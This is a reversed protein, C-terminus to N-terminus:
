YKKHAKADLGIIKFYLADLAELEVGDRELYVKIGNIDERTVKMLESLIRIERRNFSTKVDAM